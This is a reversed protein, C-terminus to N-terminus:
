RTEPLARVGPSGSPSSREGAVAQNDRLGADGSIPSETAVFRRAALADISFRGAGFVAIVLALVGLALNLQYGPPSTQSNIGTAWTVTIMAMVMDGFLALGRPTFSGSLSRSRRRRVRDRRRPRRLVRRSPPPRHELLLARDSSHGTWQVGRLAERSRLLHLDLGARDTRRALAFDLAPARRHPYGVVTALLARGSAGDDEATSGDGHRWKRPKPSTPATPPREAARPQSM